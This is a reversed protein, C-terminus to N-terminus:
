TGGANEPTGMLPPCFSPPIVISGRCERPDGVGLAPLFDSTAEAGRGERLASKSCLGRMRPPGLLPSFILLPQRLGTKEPPWFLAPISRLWKMRLPGWCRGGANKPTGFALRPFFILLPQRVDQRKPPGLSPLIAVYGRCERTDGVGRARLFDSTAAEGRGERPGFLPRFQLTVGANEPTGLALHHSFIM